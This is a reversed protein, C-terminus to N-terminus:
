RAGRRTVGLPTQRAIEARSRAGLKALIHSVHTQVTRPSILLEAAIEPNSQGSAAMLAIKTETPTLADWGPHAAAGPRRPGPHHPRRVGRARLRAGARRIDWQAGLDQYVGIADRLRARAAGAEGQSALLDAADELALAQDHPGRASQYGSAAGLVLVPNAAVLGRCHDAVATMSPMREPRASAAAMAAADAAADAVATAGAALALRTLLPLVECVMSLTGGWSEDLVEALSGAAESVRGARETALARARLLAGANVRGRLDRAPVDRVPDLSARIGEADDRSVAILARYGSALTQHWAPAALDAALDLEAIADDWRGATFYAAALEGRALWTLRGAREANRTAQEAAALAEAQRGLLRLAESRQTLLQLRLGITTGADGDATVLAQDLMELRAAHDSRLLCAHSLAQLALATGLRDGAREAKALAAAATEEASTVDADPGTPVLEALALARLAELRVGQPESMGPRRLAATATEAADAARGARLRAHALFCSVEAARDADRTSALVHSGLREAEDYRDLLFAAAVQAAQLEERRPDIDALGELVRRLLEAVLGPAESLLAPVGRTLWDVAWEQKVEPVAALQAAVRAPRVGADAMARAARLHLAARVSAPMGEYLAQRIVGHRFAARTGTVTLIRTAAAASMFERLEGIDRGAIVTLDRVPFEPDLLTAWRLIKEGTEGFEAARARALAALAPPMAIPGDRGTGDTIEAQGALVHVRNDRTLAGGLERLYLPNGGAQRALEALRRGPSGGVIRELLRVAEPPPLPNLSLVPWGRVARYATGSTDALMRRSAVVLLPLRRAAEGLERLALASAEDAWQLNEAVLILPTVACRRSVLETIRESAALTAGGPLQDRWEAILGFPV